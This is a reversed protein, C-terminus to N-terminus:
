AYASLGACTIIIIEVTVGVAGGVKVDFSLIYLAFRLGLSPLAFRLDPSTSTCFRAFRLARHTARRPWRLRYRLRM